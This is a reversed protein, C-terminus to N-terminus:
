RTTSQSTTPSNATAGGRAFRSFLGKSEGWRRDPNFADASALDAPNEIVEHDDYVLENHWAGAAYVTAVCIAIVIAAALWIARGRRAAGARRRARELLLRERTAPPLPALAGLVMRVDQPFLTQMGKM